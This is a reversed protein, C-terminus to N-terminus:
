DPASAPATYRRRIIEAVRERSEEAALKKDQEVEAVEKALKKDKLQKRFWRSYDGAELHHKWTRDDVGEAIQLFIM